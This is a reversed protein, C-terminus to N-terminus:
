RHVVCPVPLAQSLVSSHDEAEEALIVEVGSVVGLKTPLQRAFDLQLGRPLDLRDIEGNGFSSLKNCNEPIEFVFERFIADHPLLDFYGCGQKSISPNDLRLIM